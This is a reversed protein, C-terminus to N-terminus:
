PLSPMMNGLAHGMAGGFGQMNMTRYGAPVEFLSDPQPGPTFDTLRTVVKGDASRIMVPYGTDVARWEYGVVKGEDKMEYKDCLTGDVTERGMKVFHNQSDDLMMKQSPSVKFPLELATKRVPDIQYFAKKDMRVIMIMQGGQSSRIDERIKRDGVHIKSNTARTEGGNTITTVQNASYQLQAAPAMQGTLVILVAGLIGGTAVTKMTM